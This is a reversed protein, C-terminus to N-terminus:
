RHEDNSREKRRTEAQSRLSMYGGIVLGVANTLFVAALGVASGVAGFALPITFHTMQNATIRMGTAEGARERPSASFVMTMSLPQGCGCAIGLVFSVAALARPNEFLPFLLFAAAALFMAYTLLQAEGTRRVAFPLFMRVLIISIAFASMIVGIATASLGLARGYIPM